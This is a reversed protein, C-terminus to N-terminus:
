RSDAWSNHLNEDKDTTGTTIKTNFLAHIAM